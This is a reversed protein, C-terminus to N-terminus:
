EGVLGLKWREGPCCADGVLGPYEGVDGDKEGRVGPRPADPLPSWYYTYM